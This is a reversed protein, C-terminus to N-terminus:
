IKAVDNPICNQIVHTKQKASSKVGSKATSDPEGATSYEREM